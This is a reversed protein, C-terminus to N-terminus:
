IKIAVDGNIILLGNEIKLTNVSWFSGELYLTNSQDTKNTQICFKYGTKGPLTIYLNATHIQTNKPTTKILVGEVELFNVIAQRCADDRLDGKNEVICQYTYGSYSTKTGTVNKYKPDKRIVELDLM